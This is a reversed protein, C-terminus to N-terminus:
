GQDNLRSAGRLGQVVEQVMQENRGMKKGFVRDYNDRYEQSAPHSVIRDTM